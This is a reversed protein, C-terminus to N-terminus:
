MKKKEMANLVKSAQLKHPDAAHNHQLNFGIPIKNLTNITAPCTRVACRWYVREERRSKIQFRYNNYVLSQGGRSNEVFEVNIQANAMKVKIVKGM